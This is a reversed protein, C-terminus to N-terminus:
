IIQEEKGHYKLKGAIRASIAEEKSDGYYLQIRKYNLKIYARWKKDRKDWFVGTYGSTNNKPKRKNMMNDSRPGCKLNEILNNLGNHDEYYIEEGDLIPGNFYEWIVRHMGILGRKGDIYEHKKASRVPYYNNGRKRAYWKDRNLFEAVADPVIAVKGQNLIIKKM